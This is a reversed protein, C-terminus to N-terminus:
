HPVDIKDGKEGILYKKEKTMLNKTKVLVEVERMNEIIRKLYIIGAVLLVGFTLCAVIATVPHALVTQAFSFSKSQDGFEGMQAAVVFYFCQLWFAMNNYISRLSQWLAFDM